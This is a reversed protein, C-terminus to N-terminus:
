SVLAYQLCVRLTKFNRVSRKSPVCVPCSSVVLLSSLLSWSCLRCWLLSLRAQPQAERRTTQNPGEKYLHPPKRRSTPREEQRRTHINQRPTDTKKRPIENNTGESTSTPDEQHAVSVSMSPTQDTQKDMHKDSPAAAAAAPAACSGADAAATASFCCCCCWCVAVATAATANGDATAAATSGDHTVFPAVRGGNKRASM